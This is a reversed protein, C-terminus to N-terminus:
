KQYMLEKTSNVEQHCSLKPQVAILTAIRKKGTPTPPNITEWIVPRSGVYKACLCMRVNPNIMVIMAMM